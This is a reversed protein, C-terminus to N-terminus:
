RKIIQLPRDGFRCSKHLLFVPFTTMRGAAQTGAAQTVNACIYEYCRQDIRRLGASPMELLRTSVVFKAARQDFYNIQKTGVERGRQKRRCCAYPEIVQNCGVNGAFKFAM